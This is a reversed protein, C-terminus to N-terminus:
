KEIERKVVPKPTRKGPIVITLHEVLRKVEAPSGLDYVRRITHSTDALAVYRGRGEPFPLSELLSASEPNGGPFFLFMGPYAEEQKRYAEGLQRTAEADNGFLAFVVARSEAFQDSLGRIAEIATQDGVAIAGLVLVKGRLNEMSILSDRIDTASMQPVQGMQGLDDLLAKRYNYGERLYYWSGLPLGVLFLLLALTQLIKKRNLGSRNELATRSKRSHVLLFCCPQVM